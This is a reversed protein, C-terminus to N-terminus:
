KGRARSAGGTRGPWSGTTTSSIPVAEWGQEPISVPIVNGDNYDNWQMGYVIFLTVKANWMKVIVSRFVMVNKFFLVCDSFTVSQVTIVFEANWLTHGIDM